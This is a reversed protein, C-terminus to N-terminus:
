ESWIKIILDIDSTPERLCTFTIEGDDISSIFIGANSFALANSQTTPTPLGMDIRSTAVIDSVSIVQSNSSWDNADLQISVQTYSLSEQPLNTNFGSKAVILFPFAFNYPRTETSNEGITFTAGAGSSYGGGGRLYGTAATRTVDGTVTSTVGVVNASFSFEKISDNQSTGLSHGEDKGKSWDMCRIFAARLDPTKPLWVGEVQEQGYYYTDTGIEYKEALEPYEVPDFTSGDPFLFGEPPTTMPCTSPILLGVPLGRNLPFALSLSEVLSSQNNDMADYGRNTVVSALAKVMASSQFLVKNFLISRSLGQKMGNIRDGDASYQADSQINTQNEDFLLFNSSAM